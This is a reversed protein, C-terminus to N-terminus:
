ISEDILTPGASKLMNANPNAGHGNIPAIVAM